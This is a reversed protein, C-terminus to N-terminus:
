STTKRKKELNRGVAILVPPSSPQNIYRRLMVSFRASDLREAWDLLASLERTGEEHGPYVCITMLGGPRLLTLCADVAQLTTEVRTTCEHPAGPLWGLNFMVADVPEKVHDAAHQHGDLILEARALLGAEELRARTSELASPQIDFAYVKGSDGVRECLWKTDHGNGMTGDIVRCGPFLAQELLEQAWYRASKMDFM